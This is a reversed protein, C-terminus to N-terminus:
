DPSGSIAVGAFDPHTAILKEMVRRHLTKGGTAPNLNARNLAVIDADASAGTWEHSLRHSHEGVLSIKIRSQSPAATITEGDVTYGRHLLVSGVVWRPTASVGGYVAVLDCQEAM